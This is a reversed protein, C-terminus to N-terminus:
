RPEEANERFADVVVRDGSFSLSAQIQVVVLSESNSRERVVFCGHRRPTMM